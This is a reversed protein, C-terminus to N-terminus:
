AKRCLTRPGVLAVVDTAGDEAVDGLACGVSTDLSRPDPESEVCPASHMAYIFSMAAYKM